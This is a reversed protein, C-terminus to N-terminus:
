WLVQLLNSRTKLSIIYEYEGKAAEAATPFDNQARLAAEVSASQVNGWAPKGSGGLGDKPKLASRAQPQIVKGVAPM